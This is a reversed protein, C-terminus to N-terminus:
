GDSTAPRPHYQGSTANAFAADFLSWGDLETTGDGLPDWGAAMAADLLARAMGPTNLNLGRRDAHRVMGSHLFMGEPVFFGNGPRFVVQVTAQSGERRFWVIERCTKDRETPDPLDAHTHRLSWRYRETGIGLFRGSYGQPM